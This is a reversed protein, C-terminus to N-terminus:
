SARPGIRALQRSAAVAAGLWGLVAGAAVLVGFERPGPDQLAFHGGYSASLAEVPASLALRAVSVIGFSLLGASVGYVVGAYLFPRRVFANSGGVLKTVEIEAWRGQIELRITNGIVALVGAALLVASVILAERAVGLIANFRLAWDRDLQVADVGPLSALAARLSELHQPTAASATPHVELVQPLPNDTLSGLAEGFGSQSRLLALGQAATILTVSGVSDRARVQAALQRAQGESVSPKLYVSLGLSEDLTGGLVHVNIVVMGLALPLALALSLAIVTLATALAHRSLHGM